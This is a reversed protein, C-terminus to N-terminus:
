YGMNSSLICWHSGMERLIFALDEHPRVLGTAIQGTGVKVRSRRPERWRSEELGEGKRLVDWTHKCLLVPRQMAREKQRSCKVQPIQLLEKVKKM